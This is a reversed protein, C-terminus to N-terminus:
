QIGPALLPPAAAIWGLQYAIAVITMMVGLAILTVRTDRRTMMVEGSESLVGHAHEQRPKDAFEAPRELPTATGTTRIGQLDSRGDPTRIASRAVEPRQQASLHPLLVFIGVLVTAPRTVVRM